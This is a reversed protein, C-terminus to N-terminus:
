AAHIENVDQGFRDFAVGYCHISVATRCSLNALRHILDPDAAGHSGEGPRLLRTARPQPLDGQQPAYLTETLTGQHVGLACWTRHAHVPSMQGPRWVLAVVAYGGAPDSHLLHRIYRDPCCPCDLGELLAPDAAFARIADAVAAPRDAEPRRAAAAIGALMTDRVPRTRIYTM